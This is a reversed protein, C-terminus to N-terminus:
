GIVVSVLPGKAVVVRRITKGVTHNKVTPDALAREQLQDDSLGAPVTLRARVKGNIQVPVVLEEARAVDPDFTPWAAASLGEPHDLMFWLEEATHPAFPSLMVVLADIAERLVAITQMREIRGVPADGRTPAGHPTAESFAYLENVLEMLSSVATNLHMRDEVDVTVRRITEHTKRRLAREGETCDDGCAPIGEGGITEAWHDVLRWVRVLFRFSGELGADSWEVEKEPPAVFMVYLRLADAGYKALMDDPDVVNGKSKSMVAGNKLVMGQTLLRKFPEDFKVLGEDRLVRTFFRSYLLHLIAHEVGGSYFDVPMWYGAKAPDFPLSRNHPDSFRLFYWSSDVFTDMTDTERRAPGGCKPCTTNVFEPVQALPSDGRGTFTTVKPLAVPLQDYPVGVVGDKACYVIPIPTGWYRQRSIGWDKLRWQVEGKGIGRAEADRTMRGIVAPAEQGSYEDSDVVRGYNTTAETM